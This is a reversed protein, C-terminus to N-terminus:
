CQGTIPRTALSKSTVENAQETVREFYLDPSGLVQWEILYEAQQEQCVNSILRPMKKSSQSIRVWTTTRTHEQTPKLLSTM